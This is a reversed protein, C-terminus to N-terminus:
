DAIRQVFPTIWEVFISGSLSVSTIWVSLGSFKKSIKSINSMSMSCSFILDHDRAHFSLDVFNRGASRPRTTAKVVPIDSKLNVKEWM